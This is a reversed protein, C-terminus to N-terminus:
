FTNEIIKRLEENKTKIYINNCFDYEVKKLPINDNIINLNNKSIIIEKSENNKNDPSINRNSNNSASRTIINSDSNTNDNSSNSSEKSSKRRHNQTKILIHEKHYITVISPLAPTTKIANKMVYLQSQISGFGIIKKALKIHESYGFKSNEVIIDKEDALHHLFMCKQSNFCNFNNLFHNCYKTTGFFARVLQDDIKISDVSLITYAAQEPTSFTLYASNLKKENRDIKNTLIIKSIQGYQGFYENSCLLEKNYLKDPFGLFHVLNKQIIRQKSLQKSEEKTFKSNRQFFPPFINM